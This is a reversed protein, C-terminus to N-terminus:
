IPIYELVYDDFRTVMQVIYYAGHIDIWSFFNIFNQGM